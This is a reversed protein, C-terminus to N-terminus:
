LVQCQNLVTILPWLSRNEGYLGFSTLSFTDINYLSPQALWTTGFFWHFRRGRYVIPSSIAGGIPLDHFSWVFFNLFLMLIKDFWRWFINFNLSAMSCDAELFSTLDNESLQWFSTPTNLLRMPDNESLQWNTLDDNRLEGLLHHILLFEDHIYMYDNYM